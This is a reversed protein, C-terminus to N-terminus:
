PWIRAMVRLDFDKLDKSNNRRQESAASARVRKYLPVESM